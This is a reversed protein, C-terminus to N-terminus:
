SNQLGYLRPSVKGSPVGADVTFSPSAALCGISISYILIVFLKNMHGITIKAMAHKNTANINGAQIPNEKRM